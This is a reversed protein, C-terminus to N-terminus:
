TECDCDPQGRPDGLFLLSTYLSGVSEHPRWGLSAAHRPDGQTGQGRGPGAGVTWNSQWPRRHVWYEFGDINPRLDRPLRDFLAMGAAHIANRTRSEKADAIGVFHSRLDGTYGDFHDCDKGKFYNALREVLLPSLVGREARPPEKDVNTLKNAYDVEEIETKWSCYERVESVKPWLGDVVFADISGDAGNEFPRGFYLLAERPELAAAATSVVCISHHWSM